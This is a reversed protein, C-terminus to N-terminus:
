KYKFKYALIISSLFITISNSILMSTSHLLLGYVLWFSLGTISMLFMATSIDKTSKTKVTQVVQPIFSTTTLIGAITGIIEYNM